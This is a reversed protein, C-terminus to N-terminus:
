TSLIRFATSLRAANFYTTEKYRVLKKKHWITTRYTTTFLV